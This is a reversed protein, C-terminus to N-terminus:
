PNAVDAIVVKGGPQAVFAKNSALAKLIAEAREDGTAAIEGVAKLRKSFSKEKLGSVAADLGTTYAPTVMLLVAVVAGIFVVTMARILLM